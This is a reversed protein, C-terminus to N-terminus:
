MANDEKPALKHALFRQITLVGFWFLVLGLGVISAVDRFVSHRHWEHVKLQESNEFTGAISYTGPLTIQSALLEVNEGSITEVYWKSDRNLVTCRDFEVFQGPRGEIDRLTQLYHNNNQFATPVLALPVIIWVALLGGAIVLQGRAIRFTIPHERTRFFAATIVATGLATAAYSVMSEPWFSGWSVIKWDFPALLIVGNAWKIQLADLILHIGCSVGVIVFTHASNRFILALTAAFVLCFVLSSQISSYAFLTLPESSDIVLVIRRLIWPLDPIICGLLVFSLDKSRVGVIRLGAVHLGIHALTNPM